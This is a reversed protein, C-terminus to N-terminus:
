QQGGAGRQISKLYAIVADIQEETIRHRWPPMPTNPRGEEVTMRVAAEGSGRVDEVPMSQLRQMVADATPQQGDSEIFMQRQLQQRAVGRGLREFSTTLDPAYFTPVPQGMPRGRADAGHCVACKQEFVTRGETIDASLEFREEREVQLEHEMYNLVDEIMQDNLPGGFSVAWAPMPTGPRGREVIEKIQLRTFRHFVNNLPPAPWETDTAAFGGSGDPGHCGACEAEELWIREGRETSVDLFSRAYNAARFPERVMYVALFGACVAAGAMGWVQMKHLRSTELVTDTDGRSFNQPLPEQQTRRPRGYLLLLVVLLGLTAAVVLVAIQQPTM